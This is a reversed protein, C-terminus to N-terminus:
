SLEAVTRGFRDAYAQLARGWAPRALARRYYAQTRPYDAMLETHRIQRLVTAMLIDAVTFEDGTIWDRGDLQREILGLSRQAQQVLQARRVLESESDATLDIIKIQLTAWEVTNVAAFCWQTVKMRGEFDQPLLRGHKEALYLLIAGSESLTFGADDIAPVRQFPSVAEYAETRHEGATHDIGHIRYPLGLEELAWEIRLDRTEGVVIPFVRGFGYLTIM